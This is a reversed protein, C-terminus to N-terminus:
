YYRHHRLSMVFCLDFIYASNFYEPWCAFSYIFSLFFCGILLRSVLFHFFLFFFDSFLCFPFMMEWWARRHCCTILNDQSQDIGSVASCFLASLFDQQHWAGGALWLWNKHKQWWWRPLERRSRLLFSCEWQNTRVKWWFTMFDFLVCARNM